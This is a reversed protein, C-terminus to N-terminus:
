CPTSLIGRENPDVFKKSGCLTTHELIHPVGTRDPPNTKFGISFVNNRDERAIHLHEAGTGDHQLQLATLQLEPAHIKRKLTFGCLKEGPDPYSTQDTVTAYSSRLLPSRHYSKTRSLRTWPNVCCSQRRLMKIARYQFVLDKPKPHATHGHGLIQTIEKCAPM